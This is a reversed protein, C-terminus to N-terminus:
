SGPIAFGDAGIAPRHRARTLDAAISSQLHLDSTKIRHDAFMRELEPKVSNHHWTCLPQWNTSNWFLSRDGHHPVIHDIL